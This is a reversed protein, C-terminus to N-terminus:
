IPIILFSFMNVPYRLCYPEEHPKRDLDQERPSDERAQQSLHLLRQESYFLLEVGRSEEM